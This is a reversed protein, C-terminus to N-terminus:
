LRAVGTRRSEAGVHAHELGPPAERARSRWFARVRDASISRAVRVDHGHAQRTERAMQRCDGDGFLRDCKLLYEYYSDIYGGVHSTTSVWKGTDVNITEGVLGTTKSRRNYLEVLARKPAEYFEDHKTLKALTGFELILTGIEAPNSVPDRTAGTRLNVYRYPMHTPSNFAPLMRTGLDTALTLFKEEGTMQYASLLGGLVRITIEFVQVEADRDFSLRNLLMAKTRAAEDDLHMLSMTDFADIATMYFIVPTTWDHPTGSQPNLEDHDGALTAYHNWAFLFEGKARAALAARDIPAPQAATHVVAAILSAFAFTATAIWPRLTM